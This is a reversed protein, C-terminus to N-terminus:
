GSVKLVQEKNPAPTGPLHLYNVVGRVNPIKRVRQVLDDIAAQTPQEGRLTAIGNVVNVNINERSTETDGFIESEIRDTLTNDDPNPNDPQHPALGSAKNSTYEAQSAATNGAKRTYKGVKDMFIHRRRKGAAPDIFFELIAGLLGGALIAKM